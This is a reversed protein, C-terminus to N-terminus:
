EPQQRFLVSALSGPQAERYFYSTNVLFGQAKFFGLEKTSVEVGPSHTGGHFAVRPLLAGVAAPPPPPPLSQPGAGAPEMQLSFNQVHGGRVASRDRDQM